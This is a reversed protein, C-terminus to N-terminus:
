LALFGVLKSNTLALFGVLKNTIESPPFVLNTPSKV